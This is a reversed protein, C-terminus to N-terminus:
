LFLLNSWIAPRINSLSDQFFKRTEDLASYRYSVNGLFIVPATNTTCDGGTLFGFLDDKKDNSYHKEAGLWRTLEDCTYNGTDAVSVFDVSRAALAIQQTTVDIRLVLIILQILRRWNKSRSSFVM